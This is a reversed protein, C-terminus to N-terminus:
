TNNSEYYPHSSYRKFRKKAAEIAYSLALSCVMVIIFASAPSQMALGVCRLYYYIFLTHILWVNM